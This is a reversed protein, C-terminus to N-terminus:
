GLERDLHAQLMWLTKEHKELLDCLFNDTSPDDYKDVVGIAERIRKIIVEHDAALTSIMVRPDPPEGIKEKLRSNGLYEEMTATAFGGMSRVKEAVDDITKAQNVYLKEFFEHLSHFQMGRVNWNYNLIRVYVVFEDALIGNLLQQTEGSQPQSTALDTRPAPRAARAKRAGERSEEVTVRRTSEPASKEEKM